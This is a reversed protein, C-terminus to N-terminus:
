TSTYVASLECLGGQMFEQLFGELLGNCGKWIQVQTQFSSKWFHGGIGTGKSCPVQWDASALSELYSVIAM